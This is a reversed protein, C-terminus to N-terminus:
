ERSTGDGVIEGMETLAHDREGIAYDWAITIAGLLRELRDLRLCAESYREAPTRAHIPGESVTSAFLVEYYDSAEPDHM